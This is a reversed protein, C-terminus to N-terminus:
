ENEFCISDMIKKLSLEHEHSFPIEKGNVICDYFEQAMDDYRNEPPIDQIDLVTKRDAYPTDAIDLDSYTVHIKNEIPRIDM